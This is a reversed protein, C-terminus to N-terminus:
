RRRRFGFGGSSGGGGLNRAFGGAFGFCVLGIVIYAIKSSWDVYPSLAYSILDMPIDADYLSDSYYVDYDIEYDDLSWILETDYADRYVGELIRFYVEMIRKESEYAGIDPEFLNAEDLYADLEYAFAYAEVHYGAEIQAEVLTPAFEGQEYLLLLLIGMDNAGIKWQRFLETRDYDAATEGEALLFTAVVIQAGGDELEITDEYLDLGEGVIYLEAAGSLADAYDNLYYADTPRPYGSKSCSNFLLVIGAVIFALAFFGKIKTM